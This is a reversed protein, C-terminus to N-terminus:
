TITGVGLNRLVTRLCIGFLIRAEETTAPNKEFVKLFHLAAM